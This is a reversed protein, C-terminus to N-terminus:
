FPVEDDNEVNPPEPFAGTGLDVFGNYSTKNKLPRDKLPKCKGARVDDVAAFAGCETTWGTNGNEKIEYEANRYLAGIIKGKLSKEDWDWHYGPNSEEVAWINNGFRDAKWAEAQSEDKPIPMRMTGRWKKNEDTAMDYDKQFFDKYEGEAIDIRVVLTSYGNSYEEVKAGLIKAIYCGVPLKAREGSSRKIKCKFERM